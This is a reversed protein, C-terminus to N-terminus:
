KRRPRKTENEKVQGGRKGTESYNPHAGKRRRKVSEAVGGM